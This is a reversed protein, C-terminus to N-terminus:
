FIKRPIATNSITHPTPGLGSSWNTGTVGTVSLQALRYMRCILGPSSNHCKWYSPSSSHWDFFSHFRCNNFFKALRQDHAFNWDWRRPWPLCQYFHKGSSYTVCIQMSGVAVPGDLWGRREDGAVFSCPDDRSETWSDCM